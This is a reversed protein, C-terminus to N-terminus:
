SAEDERYGLAIAIQLINGASWGLREGLEAAEEEGLVAVCARAADDITEFKDLDGQGELLDALKQLYRTIQRYGTRDLATFIGDLLEGLTTTKKSQQQRTSYSRGDRGIRTNAVPIQDSRELNRRINAVTGQALGSRRAVERDSSQPDGELMFFAFARRDALSLPRGHSANLQFALAYLDENEPVQLVEAPLKELGLNKAAALRHFGDVLLYENGRKVVKLPPWREVVTELDHVYDQDIGEIRPQLGPDVNIDGIQLACRSVTAETPLESPSFLMVFM